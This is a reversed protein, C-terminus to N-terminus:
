ITNRELYSVDEVGVDFIFMVHMEARMYMLRLKATSSRPSLYFRMLKRFNTAWFPVALKTKHSTINPLFSTKYLVHVCFPTMTRKCCRIQQYQLM